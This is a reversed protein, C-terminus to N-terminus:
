RPISTWLSLIRVATASPPRWPSTRSVPEILLSRAATSFHIARSRFACLLSVCKSAQGLSPRHPQPTARHRTTRHSAVATTQTSMRRHLKPANTEYPNQLETEHATAVGDDVTAPAGCKKDLVVTRGRPGLTVKVAEALADVGAKLSRRAEEDFVLQKAM